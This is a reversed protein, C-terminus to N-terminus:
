QTEVKLSSNQLTKFDTVKVSTVRGAGIAVKALTAARAGAVSQSQVALGFQASAGSVTFSDRTPSLSFKLSGSAVNKFDKVQFVRESRDAQVSLLEVNELQMKDPSVLNLEQTPRMINQLLFKGGRLKVSTVSGPSFIRAISPANGVTEFTLSKGASHNFIYIAPADPPL